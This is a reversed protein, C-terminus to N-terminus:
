ASPAVCAAGNGHWVFIDDDLPLASVNPVPHEQVQPWCSLCMDAVAVQECPLLLHSEQLIQWQLNQLNEQVNGPHLAGVCLM